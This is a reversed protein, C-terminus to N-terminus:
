SENTQPQRLVADRVVRVLPGAHLLDHLPQQSHPIRVACLLRLQRLDPRLREHHGCIAHVAQMTRRLRGPCARQCGSTTAAMLLLWALEDAFCDCSGRQRRLVCNDDSATTRSKHEDNFSYMTLEDGEAKSTRPMTLMFM